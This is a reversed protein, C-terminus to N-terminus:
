PLPPARNRYQAVQLRPYGPEREGAVPCVFEYDPLTSSSKELVAYSSAAFLCGQCHDVHAASTELEACDHPASAFLLAFLVACSLTLLKMGSTGGHQM